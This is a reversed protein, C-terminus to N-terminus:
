EGFRLSSEVVSKYERMMRVKDGQTMNGDGVRVTEYMYAKLAPDSSIREWLEDLSLSNLITYDNLHYGLLNKLEAENWHNYKKIIETQKDM